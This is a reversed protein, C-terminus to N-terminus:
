FIVDALSSAADRQRGPWEHSYTGLTTKIDAHGLVAQVTNPHAGRQAMLTACTHRLEHFTIDPLGERKCLRKFSQYLVARHIPKGEPTTFIHGTETWRLEPAAMREELQQHRHEKLLSVLREDIELTRVKGSKTPGYSWGGKKRHLTRRVTLTARDPDFDEWLLGLIEGQRMGTSVALVLVPHVRGGRWAKAADFLRRTQQLTLAGRSTTDVQAKPADVGSIPSAQLLQWKVALNLAAGLVAYIRRATSSAYGQRHM